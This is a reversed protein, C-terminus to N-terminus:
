TESGAEKKLNLTLHAPLRSLLHEITRHIKKSEEIDSSVYILMIGLYSLSDFANMDILHKHKRIGERMRRKLQNRDVAKKFRKKPVSVAIQLPAPMTIEDSVLYVLKIPYKFLHNGEAFLRQIIKESKLKEKKHFTFKM